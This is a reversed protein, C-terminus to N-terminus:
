MLQYSSTVGLAQGSLTLLVPFQCSIDPVFPKTLLVYNQNNSLDRTNMYILGYDGSRYDVITSSSSSKGFGASRSSEGEPLNGLVHLKPPDQHEEARGYGNSRVISSVTAHRPNVSSCILLCPGPINTSLPTEGVSFVLQQFVSICKSSHRPVLSFM